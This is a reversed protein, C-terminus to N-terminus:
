GKVETKGDIVESVRELRFKACQGRGVGHVTRGKPVHPLSEWIDPLSWRLGYTTHRAIPKGETRWADGDENVAIWFEESM